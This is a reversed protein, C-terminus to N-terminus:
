IHGKGVDCFKACSEQQWKHSINSSETKHICFLLDGQVQINYIAHLLQHSHKNHYYRTVVAPETTILLTTKAFTEKVM